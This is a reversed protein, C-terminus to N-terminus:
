RREITQKPCIEACQGCRLCRAQDIEVPKKSIDICKQPCVSYCLKCGICADGVYYGPYKAAKKGISFVDRVIHSPISIDFYEGSGEYLLFVELPSRTGEPYIEKMYSNKEFIEDLKETGINRIRGRLSISKKDKVATLALYKQEMLQKYFNKGKATLFYIGSEDWLMMDIARTEPYGDEGITSVVASHLDEALIKMYDQATM